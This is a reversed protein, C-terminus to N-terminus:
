HRKPVTAKLKFYPATLYTPTVVVEEIKSVAPQAVLKSPGDDGAVTPKSWTLVDGHVRKTHRQVSQRSAFGRGCMACDITNKAALVKSM